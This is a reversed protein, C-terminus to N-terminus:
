FDDDVVKSHAVRKPLLALREKVMDINTSIQARDPEFLHVGALAAVEFVLGIECKLSGKEINKLTARSIGARQALEEETWRREKRGLKILQGLLLAAQRVYGSYHRSKAVISNRKKIIIIAM